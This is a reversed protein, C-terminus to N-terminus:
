GLYFWAIATWVVFYLVIRGTFAYSNLWIWKGALIPESERLVSLPKNWVYLSDSMWLVSILIPASLVGLFPLNSALAEAQRRIVVSWGAGVLHQIPVFFLAGLSIALFYVYATLYAHLFRTMNDAGPGLGVLFALLLAAAGLFLSTSAVGGALPGWTEDLNRSPTAAADSM